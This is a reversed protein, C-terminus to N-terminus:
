LQPKEIYYSTRSADLCLHCKQIISMGIIAPEGLPNSQQLPAAVLQTFLVTCSTALLLPHSYVPMELSGSVGHVMAAGIANLGASAVLAEDVVTHDAGTDVLAWFTRWAEDGLEVLHRGDPLTQVGRPLSCQVVPRGPPADYIKGDARKFRIPERM